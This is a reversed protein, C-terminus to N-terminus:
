SDEEDDSIDSSFTSNDLTQEQDQESLEYSETEISGGSLESENVDGGIDVSADNLDHAASQADAKAEAQNQNYIQSIIQPNEKTINSIVSLASQKGTVISLFTNRDIQVEGNIKPGWEICDFICSSKMIIKNNEKSYNEQYSQNENQNINEESINLNLGGRKTEFFNSSNLKCKDFNVLTLDASRFNVGTLDSDIIQSSRLNVGYFNAGIFDSNEIKAEIMRAWLLKVQNLNCQEKFVTFSADVYSLNAPKLSEGTFTTRIFECKYLKAKSLDADEFDTDTIINNSMNVFKMSASDFKCSIINEKQIVEKANERLNSKAGFHCTILETKKKNDSQYNNIPTGFSTFNTKTFITKNLICSFFNTAMIKSELFTANSINSEEFNGCLTAKVFSANTLDCNNFNLTEQNEIRSKNYSVSCNDFSSERLNIDFFQVNSLKCSTFNSGSLNSKIFHVNNLISDQFNSGSLNSYSFKVNYLQSKPCDINYINQINSFETDVIKIGFASCKELFVSSDNNGLDDQNVEAKFTITLSNKNILIKDGGRLNGINEDLSTTIEEDNYKNFEFGTSKSWFITMFFWFRSIPLELAKATSPVLLVEPKNLNGYLILNCVQKEHEYYVELPMPQTINKERPGIYFSIKM